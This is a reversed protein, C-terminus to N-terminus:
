WPGFHRDRAVVGSDRPRSFIPSVVSIGTRGVSRETTSRYSTPWSARRSAARAPVGKVQRLEAQGPAIGSQGLTSVEYQSLDVPVCEPGVFLTDYPSPPIYDYHPDWFYAFLFLPREPDREETLFRTLKELM